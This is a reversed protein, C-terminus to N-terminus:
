CKDEEANFGTFRYFGNDKIYSITLPPTANSNECFVKINDADWFQAANRWDRQAASSMSFPSLYVVFSRWETAINIRVGQNGSQTVHPSAAWSQLKDTQVKSTDKKFKAFDLKLKTNPDVLEEKCKECYRAAIDNEHDCEACKKMSWRYTCRQLSPLLVMCRRGYHAPIPGDDTMIRLGDLDVFYGNEDIRFGADNMRPSFVNHGACLPCTAHVPEGEEDKKKRVTIEPSFIDGDPFHTAINEAYDLILFNDKEDHLRMGRGLIQQLLSASESHRMLAIVDVHTFDVGTTMTGVSVLYKFGRARYRDVLKKRDAKKTNIDGGIMMSLEPPLSEMIEQAHRVTAAFIMVGMRHQSHAVIDAVIEATLRGKGTFARDLSEPTYKEGVLVLGSTDYSENVVGILPKTLYGQSLLLHASIHYIQKKFYPEIAQEVFRNKSDFEYIYGTGMRYPTATLGLVRLKPRKARLKEIVEIVTPTLGHAEDLVVCAVKDALRALNNKVTLPTGFIVAHRTCKDGATASLISAPNGTLLYKERNQLVLDSNPAICLVSLGHSARHVFEAIAAVIHSKGSATAAEIVGPETSVKIWAAAAEFAERQYPRLM